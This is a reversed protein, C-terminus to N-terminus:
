LRGEEIQRARWRAGVEYAGGVGGAVLVGTLMAGGDLVGDSVLNIVITSVFAFGAALWAFVHAQTRIRDAFAARRAQIETRSQESPTKEPSNM